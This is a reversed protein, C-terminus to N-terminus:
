TWFSTWFADFMQRGWHFWFYCYKKGFAELDSNHMWYTATAKRDSSSTRQLLSGGPGIKAGDQIWGQAYKAWYDICIHPTMLVKDRGLKTFIWWAIRYNLSVIHELVYVHVLSGGVKKVEIFLYFNMLIKWANLDKSNANEWKYVHFNCLNICIFSKVAYFDISIANFLTFKVLDSFVDFVRWFNSKPFPVLFLLVEEWM